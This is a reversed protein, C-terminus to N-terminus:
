RRVAGRLLDGHRGHVGGRRTCPRWENLHARDFSLTSGTSQARRFTLSGDKLQMQNFTVTANGFQAYDFGVTGGTFWAERDGICGAEDPPGLLRAHRALRM